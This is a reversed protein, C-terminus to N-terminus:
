NKNIPISIIPGQTYDRYDKVPRTIQDTSKTFILKVSDRPFGFDPFYGCESIEEIYLSDINLKKILFIFTWGCREIYLTDSKLKFTSPRCIVDESGEIVVRINENTHQYEVLNGNKYFALGGENYQDFYPSKWIDVWYKVSDNTLESIIAQSRINQDSKNRCGICLILIFFALIKSTM